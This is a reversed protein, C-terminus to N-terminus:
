PKFFYVKHGEKARVDLHVWNVDDEVRIPHPLIDAHLKLWTRVEFAKMGQVDFDIAEGTKHASNVAGIACDKPRYGRLTMANDKKNWMWNNITIPRGLADRIFDITEILKDDFLSWAENGLKDYIDPPVLEKLRFNRAKM